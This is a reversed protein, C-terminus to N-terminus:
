GKFPEIAGTKVDYIGGAVSVGQRLLSYSRIRNLDSTLAARQDASSKEAKIFRPCLADFERALRERELAKIYQPTAGMDEITHLELNIADSNEDVGSPSNELNIPEPLNAM